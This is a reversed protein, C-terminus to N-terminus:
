RRALRKNMFDIIAQADERRNVQNVNGEKAVVDIIADKDNRRNVQNVNEEKAVVDMIQQARGKLTVDMKIM